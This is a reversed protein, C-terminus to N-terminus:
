VASIALIFRLHYPDGRGVEDRPLSVPATSGIGGEGKEDIEIM